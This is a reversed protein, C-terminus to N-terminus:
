RRYVVKGDVITAVVAAEDRTVPEKAFVDSGLVVIDALMGPTLTGKRREDFAAYAAKSTYDDIAQALPLRQDIGGPRPERHMIGTIRSFADLSAVPWDSGFVVVGGADSISKWLYGRAAREPGLNGAWIGGPGTPPRTGAPRASPPPTFGGGPHMSAIVGLAGFRPVDALDITEIHEIRHRRGRAPAPNVKAADEFADLVARVAGDGLGHVMVQWGRRDLLRVVRRLEEPTYNPAGLTPANTYPALMFATNTEIVGDMFMKILGTKLFDDDPHRKWAADLRDVEAETLGPNVLMSHYVRLQLLGDRQAEEYFEFADTTGAAETISTVGYRLAEQTARALAQRQEERTPKPIVRNVLEMAPTEKLLGTPEGTVPDKVIEGRPPNPTGKTIGAAALARSNVWVSHGDFCRMVAPRDPVVADLLQRTPLNDPFAGYSWGRGRVWSRSPNAQAFARIREQVETLTGTGGLNVNEMELGGNLLHVHVDNFGPVVARGGADVVVTHAGRLADVAATTGVTAIRNGRVAIAEAFTRSGDAAYVKGNVVVLDAPAQQATSSAPALVGSVALLTTTIGVGAALLHFRGM